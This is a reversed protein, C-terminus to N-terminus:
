PSVADGPLEASSTMRPEFVSSRYVARMHEVLQQDERLEQQIDQRHDFYYSLAAHVQALSLHPLAEAIEDATKRQIEAM